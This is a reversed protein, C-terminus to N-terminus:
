EKHLDLWRAAPEKRLVLRAKFSPITATFTARYTLVHHTLSWYAFFVIPYSSDLDHPFPLALFPSRQVQRAYHLM